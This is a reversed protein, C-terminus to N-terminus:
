WGELQVNVVEGVEAVMMESVAVTVAMGVLGDVVAGCVTKNVGCLWGRDSGIIDSSKLRLNGSVSLKIHWNCHSVQLHWTMHYVM